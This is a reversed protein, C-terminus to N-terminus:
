DQSKEDFAAWCCFATNIPYDVFRVIAQMDSIPQDNTSVVRVGMGLFVSQLEPWTPQRANGSH